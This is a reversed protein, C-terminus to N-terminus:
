LEDERGLLAAMRDKGRAYHTRASGVGIGMVHSAEEVTLEHFFVLHLVERQRPSLQSQRRAIQPWRARAAGSTPTM